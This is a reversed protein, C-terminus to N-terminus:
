PAFIARGCTRDFVPSADGSRTPERRERECSSSAAPRRALGRRRRLGRRAARCLDARARACFGDLDIGAVDGAYPAHKDLGIDLM